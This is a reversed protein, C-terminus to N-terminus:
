SNSFPVGRDEASSTICTPANTRALFTVVLAVGDFVTPSTVKLYELFCPISSFAFVVFSPVVFDLFAVSCNSVVGIGKAQSLSKPSTEANFFNVSLIASLNPLLPLLTLM